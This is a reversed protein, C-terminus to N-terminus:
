LFSSVLAFRVGGAAAGQVRRQPLLEAAARLPWRLIVTRGGGLLGAGAGAVEQEDTDHGGLFVQVVPGHRRM